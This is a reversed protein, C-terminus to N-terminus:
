DLRPRHFHLPGCIKQKSPPEAAPLRTSTTKWRLLEHGLGNRGAQRSLVDQLRNGVQVGPRLMWEPLWGLKFKLM